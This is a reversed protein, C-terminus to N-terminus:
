ARAAISMAAEAVVRVRDPTMQSSLPLLCHRDAVSRARPCEHDALRYETLSPIAPYWTTQIGRQSMESRFADRTARDALLIPFGFHSSARVADESWPIAIGEAGELLRRYESVAARRSDIDRPLRPLRSRGLAARPEDMRYNFGFDDIDYSESHGRHRDWSVSTMAHSRLSRVKAALAESATVVMGGEGVCLQKKSFFSFCGLSGLTGVKSGSDTVAGVAQAADEILILGNDACIKQLAEVAAPYGMLHVAIVARTRSTIRAPIEDVDLNLDEAGVIDCFVPNAGTYRVAAASAVFSLAPVIVEDEPGIGAALISLHLAATGSSVAIAHEAGIYDAFDAEFAQTRPGMTLWGSRLCEMVAEVDEESVELETLPLAWSV